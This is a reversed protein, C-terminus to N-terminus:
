AIPESVYFDQFESHRKDDASLARYAQVLHEGEMTMTHTVRVVGLTADVVTVADGIYHIHTGDPYFVTVQKATASTWDLDTKLVIPNITGVVYNAM